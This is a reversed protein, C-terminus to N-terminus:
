TSCRASGRGSCGVGAAGPHPVTILTLPGGREWDRAMRVIGQQRWFTGGPRPAPRGSSSGVRGPRGKQVSDLYDRYGWSSGNQITEQWMAALSRNLDRVTIVM